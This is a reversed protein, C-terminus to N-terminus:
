AGDHRAGRHDGGILASTENALCHGVFPASVVEGIQRGADVAEFGSLLAELRELLGFNRDADVGDRPDIHHELDAGHAVVDRDASFRRDQLRVGRLHVLAELRLVQGVQRHREAPVVLLDVPHQGPERRRDIRVGDRGVGRARELEADVPGAVILVVRPDVADAGRVDLQRVDDGIDRREFRDLFHVDHGVAHVGLLAEGAAGRDVHRGLASGIGKVSRAELIEGVLVQFGPRHPEVISRQVGAVLRLHTVVLEAAGDSPRNLLVLDKVEDAILRDAVVLVHVPRDRNRQRCHQPPIQLPRRIRNVIREGTVRIARAARLELYEGAVRVVREAVGRRVRVAEVDNRRRPHIRNGPLDRAEDGGVVKVPLSAIIEHGGREREVTVLHIRLDIEVDIGLQVHGPGEAKQVIAGVHWRDEAVGPDPPGDTSAAVRPVPVAVSVPKRHHAGVDETGREQHVRVISVRLLSRVRLLGPEARVDAEVDESNRPRIARTTELAAPGLEVEFIKCGDPDVRVEHGVIPM